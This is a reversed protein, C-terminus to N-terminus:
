KKVKATKKSTKVTKKYGKKTATVKVTIRKGKQAKKLKLSAKKAGKIAKGNAYWQYTFKPKPKWTGVKAKLTKGVKAKGSIKPVPTKMFNSAKPTTVVAPQPLVNGIASIAEKAFAVAQLGDLDVSNAGPDDAPLAKAGATGLVFALDLMYESYQVSAGGPQPNKTKKHLWTKTQGSKKDYGFLYPIQLRAAAKRGGAAWPEANTWSASGAVTFHDVNGNQYYAIRNNRKSLNETLLNPVFSRVLEGYLYSYEGSTVNATISRNDRAHVGATAGSFRIKDVNAGEGFIVTGSLSPEIVYVTQVTGSSKAKKAIEGISAQTNHCGTSAVLVSKYGASNLINYLQPFTVSVFKFGQGSPFDSDKFVEVGTGVKNAPNTSVNFTNFYSAAINYTRKFFDYQSRVDGKVVASGNKFAADLRANADADSYALGSEFYATKQVQSASPLTQHSAKQFRVLLVDGSAYGTQVETASAPFKAKIFTWIRGAWTALHGTSNVGGIDPASADVYAYNGASGNVIPKSIISGAWSAPESVNQAAGNPTASTVTGTIDLQYDDLVTDYHYIKNIGLAKARANILPVIRQPLATKGSKTQPNSFLVYHTGADSLIDLLRDTPVNEIITDTAPLGYSDAIYNGSSAAATKEWPYATYAHSVADDGQWPFAFASTVILTATLVVVFLSKTYGKRLISLM